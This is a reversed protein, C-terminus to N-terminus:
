SRSPTFRLSAPYPYFDPTDGLAHRRQLDTWFEVSFLDGHADLFAQQLPADFRMFTRFQEPFVDDPGVGYWPDNSMEDDPHDSEPIVRFRCSQLLCIEDYDYFVVDGHRTVGFNKTFLDGPFINAVALDKVARGYDLVAARAREVGMAKLYLNLPYLRRETYLHGIIVEDDNIEVSGACQERLMDLLDPSFRDRSFALNEFEQADIMRGVRDHAFVLRYKDMVQDRTCRKPPDFRDKIIKFVVDYSALTFVAMVMGRTGPAIEFAGTSNELHRYLARYLSTKGHQNYGMSVYLEHIAKMPLLSKVFGVLEAPDDWEVHFYSRTFGFLRSAHAETVLVTDVAIGDDPHVLPIVLPTIRNLHRMRGVLYAGKNRFFVIRLVDVATIDITEWVDLLFGEVAAAVRGADGDVDRWAVGFGASADDIVEGIWDRVPRGAPTYTRFLQRASEGRPLSSPGFWRFELTADVGVTTFVRRTVSNFFTEALEGDSRGDILEAYLRRAGHWVSKPDPHEGIEGRCRQVTLDVHDRHLALRARADANQLAWERREFHIKARRTLSQFNGHFDCFGSYITEALADALDM